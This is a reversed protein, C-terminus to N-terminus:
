GNRYIPKHSVEATWFACIEALVALKPLEVQEELQSLGLHM